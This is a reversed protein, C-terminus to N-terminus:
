FIGKALQRSLGDFLSRASASQATQKLPQHQIDHIVHRATIVNQVDVDCLLHDRALDFREDASLVAARSSLLRTAASTFLRVTGSAPKSRRRVNAAVSSIFQSIM